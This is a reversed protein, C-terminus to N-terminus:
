SGFMSGIINQAGFYAALSLTVIILVYKFGYQMKEQKIVAMLMSALLSTGILFVISCVRLFAVTINIKGGFGAVSASGSTVRQISIVMSLFQTSISLLFPALIVVAFMIFITYSKTITELENKLRRKEEIYNSSEELIQALHGGSKLTSSFLKLVRDLSESSIHKNIDLVLEQFNENGLGRITVYEVEDKLPGFEPRAALKLAQFPTMGSRINSAVLRLFDPLVDEIRKTYDELGIYVLLYALYHVLAIVPLMGAVWLLNFQKSIAFPVLPVVASVVISFLMVSGLHEDVDLHRKGSHAFMVRITDQYPRPMVGGIRRYLKALRAM